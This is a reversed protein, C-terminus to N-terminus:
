DDGGAQLLEAPVEVHDGVRVGWQQFQGGRVELAFRAPQISPYGSEDLPQMTYTKVITGDSRIYAIDLPIITNRMWFSLTEDTPFVFIMGHDAPLDAETVNMLGLMRTADVEAVYATYTTRGTITISVKRLASLDNREKSARPIETCGFLLAFSFVMCVGALVAVRGRGMAARPLPPSAGLRTCKAMDFVAQQSTGTGKQWPSMPARRHRPRDGSDPANFMM